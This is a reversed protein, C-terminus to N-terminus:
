SLYSWSKEKLLLISGFTGNKKNEPFSTKKTIEPSFRNLTYFVQTKKGLDSFFVWSKLPTLSHSTIKELFFCFLFYDWFLRSFFVLWVHNQKFFFHYEFYTSHTAWSSKRPFFHFDQNKKESKLFIFFVSKGIKLSHEIELRKGPFFLFTVESQVPCLFTYVAFNVKSLNLIQCFRFFIIILWGWNSNGSNVMQGKASNDEFNIMMIIWRLANKRRWIKNLFLNERKQIKVESNQTM